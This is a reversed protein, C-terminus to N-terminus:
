RYPFNSAIHHNIDNIIQNAPLSWDADDKVRSEWLIEGDRGNLLYCEAVIRKTPNPIFISLPTEELLANLISNGVEIGFSALGSMYRKKEVRTRVIADVRLLRALQQSDLSWSERIDIGHKALIRNTQQVSQIKISLPNWRRTYQYCLSNFLSRQFAISEHNEIDRIQEETLKKPKKGRFVMEFPLIAIEKHNSTKELFIPDIIQGGGCFQLFLVLCVCYFIIGKTKM